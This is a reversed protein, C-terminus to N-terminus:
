FYMLKYNITSLDKKIKKLRKPDWSWENNFLSIRRLKPAYALERPLDLLKNNSVDLKELNKLHYLSKPIETLQNSSLSLERLSTLRSIEKPIKTLQNNQVYLIELKDLLGIEKPLETLKKSSLNLEKLNYLDYISEKIKLKQKLQLLAYLFQYTQKGKQSTLRKYDPFETELKYNWIEDRMCIKENIKKNIACFKLLNPLDLNIALTFLEDKGLKEM